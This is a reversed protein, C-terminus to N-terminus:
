PTSWVGRAEWGTNVSNSDQFAAYLIKRGTFGAKFTLNISLTLDTGAQTMTTGVGNLVCQSNQASGSGSNPVVPGLLGSNTDNVLYLLNSSRVYGLYCASGANLDANILLQTNAIVSAGSPDHFTITYTATSGSGSSPTLASVTASDSVAPVRWVGMQQWGSNGGTLDRAAAYVVKDGVYTAQNFSIALNLTLLNGSGSASTGNGLITCANNSVSGSGNLTLGPLLGGGDDTVLYLTNAPRSYAVYCSSRGDLFPNILVNVVDLNTYGASDSFTIAFTSSLGSGSAPSIASVAPITNAAADPDFVRVVYNISPPAGSGTIGTVSVSYDDEGVPAILIPASATNQGTQYWVLSNEGYGNQVAELSVSLSTGNKTLAVSAKSFDANPYAVSWRTPLLTYPFYGPSPWAVFADRTAPRATGFNGDFVWLANASGNSGTHPVDGNGFNQTQPYLIWRRHGAATNNSGYDAMYLDLCGPALTGSSWCINSNSAATAAQASYCTWNAPPTHSIQNNASFVLAAKQDEASTVPDIGVSGDVGALNRLFNLGTAVGNTWSQSITGEQCNGVNGSWNIAPSRSPLWTSHYLNTIDSKSTTDYWAPTTAQSNKLAEHNSVASLAPALPASGLWTEQATLPLAATAGLLVWLPLPYSFNM